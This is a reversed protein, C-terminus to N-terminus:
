DTYRRATPQVASSELRSEHYNLCSKEERYVPYPARQPEEGIPLPPEKGPPLATPVYIQGRMEM